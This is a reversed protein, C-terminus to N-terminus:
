HIIALGGGGLDIALPFGRPTMGTMSVEDGREKLWIKTLLLVDM